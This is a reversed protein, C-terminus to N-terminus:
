RRVSIVYWTTAPQGIAFTWGADNKTAAIAGAQARGAGDLPQVQVEKAQELGRLTIEGTVVDIQIPPKGWNVLSTRRDNWRMGEYAVRAGATLLLRSSRGIPQEDLAGLTIACFEPKVQAALHSTGRAGDAVFGVLAQSRPTEVVVEGRRGGGRWWALEGTDSRIPDAADISPYAPSQRDFALIRTRHVLPAM